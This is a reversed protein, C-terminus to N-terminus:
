RPGRRRNSPKTDMLRLAVDKAPGAEGVQVQGSAPTGLLGGALCGLQLGAGDLGMEAGLERPRPHVRTRAPDRLETNQARTAARRWGVNQFGEKRRGPTLGPPGRPDGHARPEWGHKQASKAAGQLM